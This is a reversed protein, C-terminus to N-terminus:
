RDAGPQDYGDPQHPPYDRERIVGDDDIVVTICDFAPQAFDAPDNGLTDFDREVTRGDDKACPPLAENKLLNARKLFGIGVCSLSQDVEAANEIGIPNPPAPKTAAMHGDIGIPNANPRHPTERKPGKGTSTFIQATTKRKGPVRDALELGLDAVFPAPHREIVQRITRWIASSMLYNHKTEIAALVQAVADSKRCGTLKDVMRLGYVGAVQRRFSERMAQTNARDILKSGVWRGGQIPAILVHCHPATEDHHVDASLVYEAGFVKGCWAVCDAFYQATDITAAAHLSFVIEVAQCYDRRMKDPSTDIDAMLRLAMAVVGAADVAGAIFYNLHVREGDIRGRARLERANERKNHRAASELTCPKRGGVKSLGISKVAFIYDGNM